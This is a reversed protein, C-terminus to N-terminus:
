NQQDIVTSDSSTLFEILPLSEYLPLGGHALDKLVIIRANGGLEQYRRAPETSNEAMPVVDDLDGHLHLIKM